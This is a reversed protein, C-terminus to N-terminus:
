PVGTERKNPKIFLGAAGFFISFTNFIILNPNYFVSFGSIRFNLDAFINLLFAVIGFLGVLLLFIPPVKDGADWVWILWCVASFLVGIALIAMAQAILEARTSNLGFLRGFFPMWKSSYYTLSYSLVYTVITTILIAPIILLAKHKKM